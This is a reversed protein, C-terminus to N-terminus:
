GLWRKMMQLKDGIKFTSFVLSMVAYSALYALNYAIYERSRMISGITAVWSVLWYYGKEGILVPKRSALLHALVPEPSIIRLEERREAM